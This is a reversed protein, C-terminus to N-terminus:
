DDFVPSRRQGCGHQEEWEHNRDWYTPLYKPQFKEEFFRRWTYVFRQLEHPTDHNLLADVVAEGHTKYNPNEKKYELNFAKELIEDTLTPCNFYGCILNECTNFHKEKMKKRNKKIQKAAGQIKAIDKDITHTKGKGTVPVNYRKAIVEAKFIDSETNCNRHCSPCLLVIDHSCHFKENEPFNQRYCRPVVYYKQYSEEDGCIVCKNAIEHSVVQGESAYSSESGSKGSPFFKLKIKIPDTDPVIDAIGKDLYWKIKEKNCYSILNGAPDLMQCGDYLPTKRIAISDSDKWPKPFKKKQQDLKSSNITVVKRDIVDNTWDNLIKSKLSNNKWWNCLLFENCKNQLHIELIKEFVLLGGWADAAAYYIQSKNLDKDSWDSLQIQKEKPIKLHTYKEILAKLGLPIDDRVKETKVALMYLEVCGKIVIKHKGKYLKRADHTIGVGVKLISKDALFLRFSHPLEHDLHLLQILYIADPTAIQLIAVPHLPEGKIINPKWEADLGVVSINSKLLQSFIKDIEDTSSLVHVPVVVNVQNKNNKSKNLWLLTGKESNKLDFYHYLVPVSLVAGGLIFEM